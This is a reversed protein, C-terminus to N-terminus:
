TLPFRVTIRTGGDTQINLDAEIQETLIRILNFGMGGSTAPDFDAPLGHGDDRVTLEALSPQKFLTVSIGGSERDSFAHKMANCVLENTILALPVAQEIDLALPAAEVDTHIRQSLDYFATLDRVLQHLYSSFQISALDTTGYLAEHIRSIARVRNTTEELSALAHPDQIYRSQLGLLSVIVQLNNKVRHHIERLLADKEALSRELRERAQERETVDRFVKAFGLLRGEDDCLKTLVGSARFRSGDKRVHWREDEATGEGLAIGVEREPESRAQDEPTFFIAGSQGLIEAETYGLLRTAGTNWDTVRNSADFQIFAYDKVGDAFLQFRDQKPNPM